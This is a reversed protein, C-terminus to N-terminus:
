SMAAHLAYRHAEERTVDITAVDELDLWGNQVNAVRLYPRIITAKGAVDRGKAIGSRIQGLHKLRRLTWHAPIPGLWGIGSEKMPVNPDLGKTVARTILAQRKEQLLEILREKKAIVADIAATRRRLFSAIAHQLPFPPIPFAFTEFVNQYLHQITSGQSKYRIFEAFASSNLVWYLYDAVYSEKTSRVVFVGSNLTAPGPLGRVVAIKGITGDKTVLLDGERLQIYRDQAYRHESVHQCRGWHVSGDAFDTGTVLFPGADQYEGTTLNQWGVRAKVHSTFKIRSTPIEASLTGL